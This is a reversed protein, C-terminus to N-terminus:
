WDQVLAGEVGPRGMAAMCGEFIAAYLEAGARTGHNIENALPNGAAGLATIKQGIQEECKFAARNDDATWDKGPISYTSSFHPDKAEANAAWCVATLAILSPRLIM